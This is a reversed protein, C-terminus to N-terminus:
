AASRQLTACLHSHPIPNRPALIRDLGVLTLIEAVRPSANSVTFNHDARRASSYLTVLAAIGAADIRQVSNLDLALSQRRVVPDISELLAQVAGRVLRTQRLSRTSELVPEIVSELVPAFPESPRAATEHCLTVSM